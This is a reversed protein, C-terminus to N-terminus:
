YLQWECYRDNQGICKTKKVKRDTSSNFFGNLLGTTFFCIQEGIKIGASECNEFIRITEAVELRGAKMKLYIQELLRAAEDKSLGRGSLETALQSGVKAGAMRMAMLYREDSLAPVSTVEQFLSLHAYDGLQPRVPVSREGEVRKLIEKLTNGSLRHAEECTLKSFAAHFDKTPNPSCVMVCSGHGDGVCEREYVEWECGEKDLYNLTGALTGCDYFCLPSGVNALGWCLASEGKECELLSKASTTQLKCHFYRKSVRGENWGEFFELASTPDHVDTKRVIDEMYNRDEQTWFAQSNKGCHMQLDKTLVYLSKPFRIPDWAMGGWLVLQVWLIDIWDELQPRVQNETLMAYHTQYKETGTTLETRCRLQKTEESAFAFKTTPIGPYKIVELMRQSDEVYLRLIAGALSTMATIDEQKGCGEDISVVVRRGEAAYRLLTTQVFKLANAGNMLYIPTLSDFVILLNPSNVAKALTSLTISLGNLDSCSATPFGQGTTFQGVTGRYADVFELRVDGRRSELIPEIRRLEELVAEPERNSSVVIAPRRQDLLNHALLRLLFESKGAGPPGYVLVLRGAPPDVLDTIRTLVELLGGDKRHL